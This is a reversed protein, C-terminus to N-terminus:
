HWPLGAAVQAVATIIQVVASTLRAITLIKAPAM